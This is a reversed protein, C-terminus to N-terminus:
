TKKGNYRYTYDGFRGDSFATKINSAIDINQFSTQLHSQDPSYMVMGARTMLFFFGTDGLKHEEMMDIVAALSLDLSAVGVM